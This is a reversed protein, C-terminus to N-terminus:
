KGSFSVFTLSNDMASDYMSNSGATDDSNITRATSNNTSDVHDDNPKPSQTESAATTYAKTSSSSTSSSLDM